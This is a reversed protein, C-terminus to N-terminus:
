SYLSREMFSKITEFRWETDSVFSFIFEQMNVQRIRISNKGNPFYCDIMGEKSYNPFYLKFKEYVENHTM